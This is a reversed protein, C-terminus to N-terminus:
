CCLYEHISQQAVFSHELTIYSTANNHTMTYAYDSIKRRTNQEKGDRKTDPQKVGKAAVYKKTLGGGFAVKM